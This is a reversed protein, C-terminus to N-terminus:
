APDFLLIRGQKRALCFATMEFDGRQAAQVQFLFSQLLFKWANTKAVCCRTPFRIDESLTDGHPLHHVHM